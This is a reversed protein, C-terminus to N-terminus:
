LHIHLSKYTFNPAWFSAAWTSVVPRLNSDVLKILKEAGKLVGAPTEPGPSVGACPLAIGVTHADASHQPSGSKELISDLKM